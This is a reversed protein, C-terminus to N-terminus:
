RDEVWKAANNIIYEGIEQRSRDDRIIHDWYGRQWVAEGSTGRLMNIRRASFTKLQRVIESLGPSTPAPELGAGFVAADIIAIIGHIHNPMIVFPGLEIGKNYNALDNWTSSVVEGYGNLRMDGDIVEGFLYVHAHTCVTIFYEGPQSYDYEKLRMSYRRHTQPNSPKEMDNGMM